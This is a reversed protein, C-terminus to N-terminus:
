PVFSPQILTNPVSSGIAKECGGGKVESEQQGTLRSCLPDRHNFHAEPVMSVPNLDCTEGCEPQHHQVPDCTLKRVELISAM